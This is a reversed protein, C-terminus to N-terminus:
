EARLPLLPTSLIMVTHFQLLLCADDVHWIGAAPTLCRLLAMILAVATCSPQLKVCVILPLLATSKQLRVTTFNLLWGLRDEGETFLPWGLQAELVDAARQELLQLAVVGCCCWCL